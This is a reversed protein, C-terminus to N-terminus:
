RADTDTAHIFFFGPTGAAEAGDGLQGAPAIGAIFAFDLDPMLDFFAHESRM